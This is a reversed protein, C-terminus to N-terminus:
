GAHPEPLQYTMIEYWDFGEYASEPQYPEPLQYTMIEYWDFGEYASVPQYPEPLQYTMEGLWDFQEYASSGLGVAAPGYIPGEAVTDTEDDRLILTVGVAVLAIVLLSVLWGFWGRRPPRREPPPEVPPAEPRPPAKVDPVEVREKLQTM